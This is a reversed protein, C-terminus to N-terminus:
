HVWFNNLIGTIDGIGVVGEILVRLADLGGGSFELSGLAAGAFAFSLFLALGGRATRSPSEAEKLVIILAEEAPVLEELVVFFHQDTIGAIGGCIEGGIGDGFGNHSRVISCDEDQRIRIGAAGLVIVQHREEVGIVRIEVSDQGAILGFLAVTISPGNGWLAREEELGNGVLPGAELEVFRFSGEPKRCDLILDELVASLVVVILM